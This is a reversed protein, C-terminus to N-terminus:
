IAETTRRAEARESVNAEHPQLSVGDQWCGRLDSGCSAYVWNDTHVWTTVYDLMQKLHPRPSTLLLQRSSSFCVSVSESPSSAHFYICARRLKLVVRVGSLRMGSVEAQRRSNSLGKRARIGNRSCWAAARQRREQLAFSSHLSRLLGSQRKYLLGRLLPPRPPM